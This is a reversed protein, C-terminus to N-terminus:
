PPLHCSSKYSQKTQTLGNGILVLNETFFSSGGSSSGERGLSGVLAESTHTEIFDDADDSIEPSGDLASFTLLESFTLLLGVSIGKSAWFWM